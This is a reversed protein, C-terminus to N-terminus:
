AIGCKGHWDTNRLVSGARVLGSVYSEGTKEMHIYVVPPINSAACRAKIREWDPAAKENHAM